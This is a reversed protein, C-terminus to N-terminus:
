TLVASLWVYARVVWVPIPVVVAANLPGLATAVFEDGEYAYRTEGCWLFLGSNVTQSPSQEFFVLSRGEPSPPVAAWRNARM